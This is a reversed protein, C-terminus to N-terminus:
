TSMSDMFEGLGLRFRREAKDSAFVGPRPPDKYLRLDRTGLLREADEQLVPGIGLCTTTPERFVTLAADTILAHPVGHKECLKAVERLVDSSGMGKLLAMAKKFVSFQAPLFAISAVLPQFEIELAATTLELAKKPLLNELQIFAEIRAESDLIEKFIKAVLESDDFGQLSNHSLQKSRISDRSMGTVDVLVWIEQQEAKKAARIRHHGSDSNLISL